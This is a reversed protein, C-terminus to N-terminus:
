TVTPQGTVPAVSQRLVPQSRMPILPAIGVMLLSSAFPIWLPMDVNVSNSTCGGGYWWGREFTWNPFSKFGGMGCHLPYPNGRTALSITVTGERLIFQSKWAGIGASVFGSAWTMAAIVAAIILWRVRASQRVLHPM